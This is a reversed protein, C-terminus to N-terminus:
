DLWLKNRDYVARATTTPTLPTASPVSSLEWLLLWLEWAIEMVIENGSDAWSINQLDSFWSQADHFKSIRYQFNLLGHKILSCYQNNIDVMTEESRGGVLINDSGLRASVQLSRQVSCLSVLWYKKILDGNATYYKVAQHLAIAKYIMFHKILM